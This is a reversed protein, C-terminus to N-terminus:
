MKKKEAAKADAEIKEAKAKDAAKDAAITAADKTAQADMLSFHILLIV